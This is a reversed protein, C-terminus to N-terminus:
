AGVVGRTDDAYWELAQRSVLAWADRGAGFRDFEHRSIARITM